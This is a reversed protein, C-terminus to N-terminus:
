YRTSFYLIKYPAVEDAGFWPDVLVQTLWVEDKGFFVYIGFKDKCLRSNVM